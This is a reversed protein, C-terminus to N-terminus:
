FVSAVIVLLLGALSRVQQRNINKALKSQMVM